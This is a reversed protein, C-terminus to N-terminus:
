DTMPEAAAPVVRQCSLGIEKVLEAEVEKRNPHAPNGRQVDMPTYAYKLGGSLMQRKTDTRDLEFNAAALARKSRASLDSKIVRNFEEKLALVQSLKMTKVIAMTARIPDKKREKVVFLRARQFDVKCASSLQKLEDDSSDPGDPIQAFATLREKTEKSFSLDKKKDIKKTTMKETDEAATATTPDSSM